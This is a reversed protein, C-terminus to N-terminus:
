RKKEIKSWYLLLEKFQFNRCGINTYKYNESSQKNILNARETIYEKQPKKNTKEKQATKNNTIHPLKSDSGPYEIHKLGKNIDLQTITNYSVHHKKRLVYSFVKNKNSLTEYFDILYKISRLKFSGGEIKSLIIENNINNDKM